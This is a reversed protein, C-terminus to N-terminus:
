SKSSALTNSVRISLSRNGSNELENRTITSFSSFRHFLDNISLKGVLPVVAKGDAGIDTLIFVSLAAHPFYTGTWFSLKM